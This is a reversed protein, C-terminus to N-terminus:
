VGHRLAGITIASLYLVADDRACNAFFTRVEANAKEGKRAEGIIDTDILYM